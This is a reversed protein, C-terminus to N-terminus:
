DPLISGHQKLKDIRSRANDASAKPLMYSEEQVGFGKDWGFTQITDISDYISSYESSAYRRCSHFEIVTYLKVDQITSPKSGNKKRTRLIRNLKAKRAVQKLLTRQKTAESNVQRTTKVPKDWPFYKYFNKVNRELVAVPTVVKGNKERVGTYMLGGNYKESNKPDIRLLTEISQGLELNLLYIDRARRQEDNDLDVDMLRKIEESNLAIKEVESPDHEFDDKLFIVYREARKSILSGYGEERIHNLTESYKKRMDDRSNWSTPFKTKFFDCYKNQFKEDLETIKIKGHRSEYDKICAEYRTYKSRTSEKLPKRVSKGYGYKFKYHMYSKFWYLFDKHQEETIVLPTDEGRKAAKIAEQVWAKVEDTSKGVSFESITSLNNQVQIFKQREIKYEKSIKVSESSYSWEGLPIKIGTSISQAHKLGPVIVNALIPVLCKETPKNRLKPRYKIEM